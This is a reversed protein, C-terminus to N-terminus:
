TGFNSDDGSERKMAELEFILAMLRTLNEDSAEESYRRKATQLDVHLQEQLYGSWISKWGLRAQDLSRDPRAFSAHMYTTESLVEALGAQGSDPAADVEGEPSLHRYLETADLPEHSELSLIEVVRQRLAEFEPNAFSTLALDEGFDGFLAPHNIMLALLAKERLRHPSQPQKRSM